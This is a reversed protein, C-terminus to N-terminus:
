YWNFLHAESSINKQGSRTNWTVSTTVLKENGSISSITVIRKFITDNGSGYSFIGSNIDKKLFRSLSPTLSASDWQVEYTGDPITAGFGGTALWERDRINRVVEMGEQVLGSAISDDRLSDASLLNSTFLFSIAGLAIGLIIISVLVEILTIGQESFFQSRNIRM